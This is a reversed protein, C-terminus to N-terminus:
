AKTMALPVDQKAQAMDDIGAVVCSLNPNQLVWHFGKQFVNMDGPVLADLAKVREPQTQRRNFRNQVVRAAKMCMVGFDAKQAKELVTAMYKHNLFHYAVIGMSYPETEMAAELVGAPDTHSSFGLFRAKGQKKLIEFGELVEPTNRIEYPTSVGHMLVCDLHDTGLAKLSREVSDLMYQKYYRQGDIKEGYKEALANVVMTNRLAEEQGAYYPGMYDMKDLGRREIEEAVRNRIQRMEPDPLSQMMDRYARLRNVDFVQVKDNQFVKDRGRAKLVAAWGLESRGNGYFPAVDFLNVGQDVAWLAFDYNDPAIGEGGLVMSSVMFGTRGLRRYTMGPQRNRWEADAPAPAADVKGLVGGSVVTAASAALFGRRDLKRLRETQM